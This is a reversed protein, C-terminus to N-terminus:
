MAYHQSHERHPTKDRGANTQVESSLSRQLPLCVFLSLLQGYLPSLLAVAAAPGIASPDDLQALMQVAGILAGIWGISVFARSATGIVILATRSDSKETSGVLAWVVSRPADLGHAAFVLGLSVTLVFVLAPICLFAAVSGELTIALCLGFVAVAFGVLRM